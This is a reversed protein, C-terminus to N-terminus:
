SQVENQEFFILILIKILFNKLTIKMLNEGVGHREYCISWTAGGDTTRVIRNGTIACGKISDIFFASNFNYRFGGSQETWNIGGDTTQRIIGSPSISWGNYSDIFYIYDVSASFNSITFWNNGRNTTKLISGTKNSIWGTSDNAFVVCTLSSSTLPYEFWTEGGDSSNILSSYNPSANLYGAIWGNMNNAFSISSYTGSVPLSQQIWSQGGDITHFLVNGM